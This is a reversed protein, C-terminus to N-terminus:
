YTEDTAGNNRLKWILLSRVAVWEDIFPILDKVTVSTKGPFHEEIFEDTGPACNGSDLSDSRTVVVDANSQAVAKLGAHSSNSSM